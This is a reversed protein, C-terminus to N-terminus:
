RLQRVTDDSVYPPVLVGPLIEFWGRAARRGFKKRLAIEWDPLFPMLLVTELGQKDLLTKIGNAGLMHATGYLVFVRRKGPKEGLWDSVRKAAYRNRSFWSAGHKFDWPTQPTIGPQRKGDPTDKPPLPPPKEFGVALVAAEERLVALYAEVPWGWGEKLFDRIRHGDGEKRLAALKKEWPQPIAELAFACERDERADKFADILAARCPDITHIDGVLVVDAARLRALARRHEVRKAKGALIARHGARLPELASHLWRMMPVQSVLGTDPLKEIIRIVDGGALRDRLKATIAARGEADEVWDLAHETLLVHAARWVPEPVREDVMLAALAPALVIEWLSSDQKIGKGLAKLAEALRAAGADSFLYARPDEHGRCLRALEEDATFRVEEAGGAAAVLLVPLAMDKAVRALTRLAAVREPVTAYDPEVFYLLVRALAPDPFKKRIWDFIAIRVAPSGPLLGRVMGHFAKVREPHKLRIATTLEELAALRDADSRAADNLTAIADDIEDAGAWTVALLLVAITRM